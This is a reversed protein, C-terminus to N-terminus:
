FSLRNGDRMCLTTRPVPVGFFLSSTSLRSTQSHSPHTHTRSTIPAGDINLDVRLASVKALINGVKEKLHSSFVKRRFYFLGRDHQTLQVGSAAFFATLKGILRYSYCDLSNVIMRYGGLRVLLVLCLPSQKILLLRM